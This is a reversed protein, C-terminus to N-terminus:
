IKMIYCLAYYPPILSEYSTTHTHAGSTSIAKNLNGSPSSDIIVTGAPLTHVHAGSSAITHRHIASGGTAGPAYGAGAGVIFRDTLNPTGETGDCLHWGEPIDIVAGSWLCIIGFLPSSRQNKLTM